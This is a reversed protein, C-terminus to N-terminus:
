GKLCALKCLLLHWLYMMSEKDRNKSPQDWLTTPKYAPVYLDTPTVSSPSHFATQSFPSFPPHIKPDPQINNNWSMESKRESPLPLSLSSPLSIESLDFGYFCFSGLEPSKTNRSCKILTLFSFRRGGQFGKSCLLRTTPRPAWNNMWEIMEKEWCANGPLKCAAAEHPPTLHPKTGSHM